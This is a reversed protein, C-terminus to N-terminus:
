PGDEEAKMWAGLLRGIEATMRAAHEYQGLSIFKLDTAMRLRRKLLALQIDAEVLPGPESKKAAACLLEQLGFAADELRKALRFRQSKPFKETCGIFWTLMQDTKVFIPSEQM